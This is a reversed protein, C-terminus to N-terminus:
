RPRRWGLHFLRRAILIYWILYGVVSLLSLYVGVTPVYLGFVVINTAIGVNAIRKGFFDSRLM